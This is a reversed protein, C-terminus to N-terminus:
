TAPFGGTSKIEMLKVCWVLWKELYSITLGVLLWSGYKEFFHFITGNKLLTCNMRESNQSFLCCTKRHIELNALLFQSHILSFNFFRTILFCRKKKGVVFIWGINCFIMNKKLNYAFNGSNKCISSRRTKCVALRFCGFLQQWPGHVWHINSFNMDPHFGWKGPFFCM